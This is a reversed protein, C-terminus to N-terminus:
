IWDGLVKGKIKSLDQTSFTKTVNEIFDFENPNVWFVVGSMEGDSNLTEVQHDSGDVSLVMLRAGSDIVYGDKMEKSISLSCLSVQLEQESEIVANFDFKILQIM